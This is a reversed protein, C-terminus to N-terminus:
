SKRKKLAWIFVGSLSLVIFLVAMLDMLYIGWGGLIRGSHLDLLLREWTINRGLYHDILNEYAAPDLLGQQSWVVKLDVVKTWNLQDLNIQYIKGSSQLCLSEGCFGLQSIPSPLGYLSGIREILEGESNLQLLEDECAILIQSGVWQSSERRVALFDGNENRSFGLVGRLPGDCYTTAKQNLYLEREGIQTIWDDGLSYSSIVPTKLQYFALVQAGRLHAKDLGISVSHNLLLGTGSLLLVFFAALLGVRRHWRWLFLRVKHRMM